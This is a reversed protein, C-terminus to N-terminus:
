RVRLQQGVQIADNSLGNLRRLDAVTTNFRRALSYLTDGRGVTYYEGSAPRTPYTTTPNAPPYGPTTTTPQGGPSTAPTPDVPPYTAGTTAPRAPSTTTGGPRNPQPTSNPNSSSTPGSSTGGQTVDFLEDNDAVVSGPRVPPAPATPLPDVATDRLTIVENKAPSGKLRIGEGVAPEQGRRLKNRKLLAALEIGYQQAIEFMTQGERVYHFTTRGHYREKKNQIFVKTNEPLPARPAYGRDNYSVVQETRLNYARAIDELTEGPQSLVVKVDNVRGVRQRVEVVGGDPAPRSPQGAPDDGIQRPRNTGVQNPGPNSVPDVGAGAGPQDYEYLRLREILGILRDAYDRSTAYGSSQLGKAWGKYDTRDLNFLFGYRNYKRPDRLFATHDAYSEAVNNYRRFCSEKLDGKEDKDDDKKQYTPGTWSSSACKIGFHNNARQALESTGSASELLAQALKISAPIGSRYMEAIAAEKYNQIYDLQAQSSNTTHGTTSPRSSENSRRAPLGKASRSTTCAVASLAIAFLYLAAHKM